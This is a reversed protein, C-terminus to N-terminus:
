GVRPARHWAPHWHAADVAPRDAAGARQVRQIGKRLQAPAIRAFWTSLDNFVAGAQFPQGHFLAPVTHKEVIIALDIRRTAVM